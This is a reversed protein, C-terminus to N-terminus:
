CPVVPGKQIMSCVPISDGTCFDVTFGNPCTWGNINGITTQQGRMDKTSFITAADIEADTTWSIIQALTADYIEAGFSGASGDNYGQMSIINKGPLLEIEFIHWHTFNFTNTNNAEVVYPTGNLSFRFRNDGALGVYVKKKKTVEICHTFGVWQGDPISSNWIGVKNLRGTTSSNGKWISHTLHPTPTVVSTSNDYMVNGSANTTYPYLTPDTPYVFAGGWGYATSQSGTDATFTRGNFTAPQTTTKQCYTGNGVKTFTSDACITCNAAVIAPTINYDCSDKKCNILAIVGLAITLTSIIKFNKMNNKKLVSHNIVGYNHFHLELLTILKM